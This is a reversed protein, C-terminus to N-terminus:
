FKIGFSKYEGTAEEWDKHTKRLQSAFAEEVAKLFEILVKEAGEVVLEVQGDPSNKVFGTVAFKRAIRETTYRFGVGQVRGFFRAHLRKTMRSEFPESHATPIPEHSKRLFTYTM